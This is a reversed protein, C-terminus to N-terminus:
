VLSAIETCKQDLTVAIGHEVSPFFKVLTVLKVLKLNGSMVFLLTIELKVFVLLENQGSLHKFSPLETKSKRPMFFDFKSM